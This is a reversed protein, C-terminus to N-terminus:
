RYLLKYFEINDLILLTADVNQVLDNMRKVVIRELSDPVNDSDELNIIFFGKNDKSIHTIKFYDKFLKRVLYKGVLAKNYYMLSSDDM